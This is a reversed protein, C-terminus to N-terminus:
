VAITKQQRLYKNLSKELAKWNPGQSPLIAEEFIKERPPPWSLFDNSDIQKGYVTLSFAYALQDGAEAEEKISQWQEQAWDLLNSTNHFEYEWFLEERARQRRFEVKIGEDM